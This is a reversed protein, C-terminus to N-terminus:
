IVSSGSMPSIGGMRYDSNRGDMVKHASTDNPASRQLRAGSLLWVARLLGALQIQNRHRCCNQLCIDNLRTATVAALARAWRVWGDVSWVVWDGVWGGVWQGFWGIVWGDMWGGVSWVVWGGVWGDMWWGFWGLSLKM